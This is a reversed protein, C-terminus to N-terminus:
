IRQKWQTLNFKKSSSKIQQLVSVNKIETEPVGDDLLARGVQVIEYADSSSM